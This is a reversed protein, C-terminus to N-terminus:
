DVVTYSGEIPPKQNKNAAAPTSQRVSSHRDADTNQKRLQGRLSARTAIGVLLMLLLMGLTLPLMVAFVVVATISNLGRAALHKIKTLM